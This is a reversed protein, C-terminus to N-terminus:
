RASESSAAEVSSRGVVPIRLANVRDGLLGLLAPLLTLAAAVSVVGALIADIAVSRMISSPVLLMGFMAVVFATGSFVVSRSATMGSAAIADLEELGRAREERYRSIVFLSYDIGLALGMGSLMNVIFVSLEFTQALLAV